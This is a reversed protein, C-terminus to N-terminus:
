TREVLCGEVGDHRPRLAAPVEVDSRVSRDRRRLARDAWRRAGIDHQAHRLAVGSRKGHRVVVPAEHEIRVERLGCVDRAELHDRILAGFDMVHLDEVDVLRLGDRSPVTRAYVAFGAPATVSRNLQRRCLAEVTMVMMAIAAEARERALGSQKGAPHRALVRDHIRPIRTHQELRTVRDRELHVVVEVARFRDRVPARDLKLDRGSAFM